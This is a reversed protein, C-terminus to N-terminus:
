WNIYKRLYLIILNDIPVLCPSFRQPVGILALFLSRLTSARLPYVLMPCQGGAVSYVFSFADRVGVLAFRSALGLLPLGM